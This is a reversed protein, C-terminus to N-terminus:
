ELVSELDVALLDLDLKANELAEIMDYKEDSDSLELNLDFLLDDADAIIENIQDIMRGLRERCTKGNKGAIVSRPHDEDEDEEEDDEWGFMDEDEDEDDYDDDSLDDYEDYEDYSESSDEDDDFSSHFGGDEIDRDGFLTEYATAQEIVNLKGDGDFDFFDDIGM